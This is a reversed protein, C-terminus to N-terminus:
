SNSENFVSFDTTAIVAYPNSANEDDKTSASAQTTQATEQSQQASLRATLEAIQATVQNLSKQATQIAEAKEDDTMDESANAEDIQKQLAVQSARLKTIQASIDSSGSGSSATTVSTSVSSVSVM